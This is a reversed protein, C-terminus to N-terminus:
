QRWAELIPDVLKAVADKAAQAARVHGEIYDGTGDTPPSPVVPPEHAWAALETLVDALEDDVVDDPGESPDPGGWPVAALTAHAQAMTALRIGVLPAPAAAAAILLESARDYHEDPTM